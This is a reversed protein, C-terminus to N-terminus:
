GQERKGEKDAIRKVDAEFWARGGAMQKVRADFWALEVDGFADKWGPMLDREAPSKFAMEYIDDFGNRVQQLASKLDGEVHFSHQFAMNMVHEDCLCITMSASGDTINCANSWDKDCGVVECGPMM